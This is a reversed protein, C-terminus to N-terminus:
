LMAICNRNSNCDSILLFVHLASSYLVCYMTGMEPLSSSVVIDEKLVVVAYRDSSNLPERECLPLIKMLKQLGYTKISITVIFVIINDQKYYDMKVHAYYLM